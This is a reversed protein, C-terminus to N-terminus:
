RDAARVSEGQATTLGSPMETAAVPGTPGMRTAAHPRGQAPAHSPKRASPEALTMSVDEPQELTIVRYTNRGEVHEKDGPKNKIRRRIYRPLTVLVPNEPSAAVITAEHEGAQRMFRTASIWFQLTEVARPPPPPPELENRKALIAAMEEDLKALAEAKAAPGDVVALAAEPTPTEAPKAEEAKPTATTKKTTKKSAM